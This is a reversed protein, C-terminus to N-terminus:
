SNQRGERYTNFQRNIWEQMEPSELRFKLKKGLRLAPMPDVPTRDPDALRYVLEKSVGLYATVEKVDVFPSKM